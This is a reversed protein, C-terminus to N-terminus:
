NKGSTQQMYIINNLTDNVFWEACDKGFCKNFKHKEM